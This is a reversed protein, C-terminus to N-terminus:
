PPGSLKGAWRSKTVDYLAQRTPEAIAADLDLGIIEAGISVDLPKVEFSM